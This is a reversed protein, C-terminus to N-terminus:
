EWVSLLASATASTSSNCYAVGRYVWTILFWKWKDLIDGSLLSNTTYVKSMMIPNSSKSTVQPNTRTIQWCHGNQFQHEVNRLMSNFYTFLSGRIALDKFIQDVESCIWLTCLNQITKVWGWNTFSFWSLESQHSRGWPSHEQTRAVAQVALM